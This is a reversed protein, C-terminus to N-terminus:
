NGKSPSLFKMNGLPVRQIKKDASGGPDSM